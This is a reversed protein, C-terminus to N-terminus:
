IILMMDHEAQTRGFIIIDDSINRAGKIGSITERVALDFEDQASVIAFALRKYSKNGEHTYFTTIGTSAEDLKIRHYGANLDLLFFVTAGNIGLLIDEM